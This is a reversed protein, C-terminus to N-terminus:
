SRRRTAARSCGKVHSTPSKQPEPGWHHASSRHQAPRMTRDPDTRPLDPATARSGTSRLRRTAHPPFGVLRLRGPPSTSGHPHGNQPPTFRAPASRNPHTTPNRSEPPHSKTRTVSRTPASPSTGRQDATGQTTLHHHATSPKPRGSDHPYPNPLGRHDHPRHPATAAPSPNASSSACTVASRGASACTVAVRGSTRPHSTPTHAAAPPIPPLTNTSQRCFTREPFVPTGPRSREPVGRRPPPHRPTVPPRPPPPRSPRGYRHGAVPTPVAPRSGTPPGSRRAADTPRPPPRLHGAPRKPGPLRAWACGGM